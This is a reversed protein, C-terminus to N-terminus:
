PWCHDERKVSYIDLFVFLYAICNTIALTIILVDLKNKFFCIESAIGYAIITFAATGIGFIILELLYNTSKSYICGDNKLSIFSFKNSNIVKFLVIPFLTTFLYIIIIHKFSFISFRLMALAIVIINKLIASFILANFIFYCHGRQLSSTTDECNMIKNVVQKLVGFPLMFCLYEVIRFGNTIIDDSRYQFAAYCATIISFISVLCLVAKIRTITNGNQQAKKNYSNVITNDKEKIHKYNLNMVLISVINITFVSIFIFASYEKKMVFALIASIIVGVNIKIARKVSLM